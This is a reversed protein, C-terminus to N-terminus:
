QINQLQERIKEMEAKIEIALRSIVADNAKNATTNVERMIEQTLFDLRKGIEGVPSLLRRFQKLHSKLRVIEETIDIRDAYIAVEALMRREDYKAGQLLTRVKTRLREGYRRVAQPRLADIRGVLADVRRWRKFFDRTLTRGERSQSKGLSACSLALAKRALGWVPKRALSVKQSSMVAGTNVLTALDIRGELRLWSRVHRLQSAIERCARRNVSVRDLAGGPHSFLLYATVQGRGVHRQLYDRVKPELFAIERELNVQIKVYKSNVSQLQVTCRGAAGRADGEGFGTMSKM